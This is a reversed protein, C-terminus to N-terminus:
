ASSTAPVPGVLCALLAGNVIVFMWNSAPSERRNAAPVAALQAGHVTPPGSLRSVGLSCAARDHTCCSWPMGLAPRACGLHSLPIRPLEAPPASDEFSGPHRM